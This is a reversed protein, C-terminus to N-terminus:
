INICLTLHYAQGLIFFNNTIAKVWGSQTPSWFSAHHYDVLTGKSKCAYASGAFYDDPTPLETMLKNQHTSNLMYLNSRPYRKGKMMVKGSGKNLIIVTKDNFIAQCRHDCFNGISLFDKSLSPFIHAKRSAIPPDKKSLLATHTPTIIEGNPM